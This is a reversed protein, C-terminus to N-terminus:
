VPWACSTADTLASDLWDVIAEMEPEGFPFPPPSLVHDGQRCNITGGIPYGILGKAMVTSKM